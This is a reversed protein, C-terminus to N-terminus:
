LRSFDVTTALTDEIHGYYEDFADLYDELPEELRETCFAAIAKEREVELEEDSWLARDIVPM